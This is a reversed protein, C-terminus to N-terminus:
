SANMPQCKSIREQFLMNRLYFQTAAISLSHDVKHCDAIRFIDVILTLLLIIIIIAAIM